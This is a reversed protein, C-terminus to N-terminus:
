LQRFNRGPWGILNVLNNVGDLSFDNFGPDAPQSIFHSAGQSLLNVECVLGHPQGILGARDAESGEAKSLVLRPDAVQGVWEGAQRINQALGSPHIDGRNVAIQIKLIDQNLRFRPQNAQNIKGFRPRIVDQMIEQAQFGLHHGLQDGFNQDPMVQWWSRAQNGEVPLKM